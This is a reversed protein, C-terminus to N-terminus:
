LKKLVAKLPAIVQDRRPWLKPKGAKLWTIFPTQTGRTPFLRPLHADRRRDVKGRCVVFCEGDYIDGVYFGVGRLRM